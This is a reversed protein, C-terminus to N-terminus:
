DVIYEKVNTQLNYNSAMVFGYAGVDSIVLYDREELRPLSRSLGLFDSSECIPGVIDYKTKSAKRPRLPQIDHYASYLSPRILHHMGTNVIAFNKFPTSKIYEVQCVLVGANGVLFRGPECVIQPDFDRLVSTARAAIQNLNLAKENKYSIGFGGGINFYRLPHGLSRVSKFDAAGKDIAELYPQASLLQSGIHFGLGELKLYPNSKITKLIEPLAKKDIGFKNKRFGTTIYPHTKPNVDPNIRISLRTPTKLRKSIKSIRLCEALSEINILQVKRSIAYNLEAESKGVGSFIIESPIFGCQLARVIEGGSVVDVCSGLGKLHKLIKENSNAKMAYHIEAQGHFANQLELFNREIQKKSYLYFPTRVSKILKNIKRPSFVKYNFM